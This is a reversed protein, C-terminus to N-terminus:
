VCFVLLAFVYTYIYLSRAEERAGPVGAQGQEGAVVGDGPDPVDCLHGHGAPWPAPSRKLPTGRRSSPEHCASFFDDLLPKM